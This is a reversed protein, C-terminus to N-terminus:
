SYVIYQIDKVIQDLREPVGWMRHARQVLVVPVAVPLDVGKRRKNPRIPRVLVNSFPCRADHADAIQGNILEQLEKHTRVLRMVPANLAIYLRKVAGTDVAKKM